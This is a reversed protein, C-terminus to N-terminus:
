QLIKNPNLLNKSDLTRKLIQMLKMSNKDTCLSIYDKKLIGIGHEGSIVGSLGTCLEYMESKASKLRRVEDADGYNIPIQPHVSGDGVHGILCVELKYKDCIEHVGKVLESLNERPVVLDDTAVNPKLRACSAFSARRASWIKEYEEDTSSIRIESAKYEKLVKEVARIQFDLTKAMGDVELILACEKDTLIGAHMFEEIAKLSNKDMFDITCPMIKNSIIANVANVADDIGDFYSMIVSKKEPKPILKLVAETIIGLTGESGAFLSSLNYGAANKITTSGTNIIEGNSLVVELGLVYDKMTGYKFAKAGASNQAIGGGVTSVKLNSPDPPFYLGIKEAERQLDGVVVGAQVRATMNRPNIDLIKNMKVLNLVISEKIPVCAGVVNTGAGRTILPVSYKRSIEVIEAVESVSHPFVVALVINNNCMLGSADQCYAYCEAYDTLVDETIKQLDRILETKNLM